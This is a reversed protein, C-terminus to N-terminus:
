WSFIDASPGHKKNRYKDFKSPINYATPGPSDTECSTLFNRNGFGFSISKHTSRFTPFHQPSYAIPSPSKKPTLEKFKSQFSFQPSNKRPKPTNNYSGPGPVGNDDKRIPKKTIKPGIPSNFSSPLNYINPPPSDSGKLPVPKWRSGFGMTITRHAITSPLVSAESKHDSESSPFRLSKSLSWPTGRIKTAEILRLRGEYHM